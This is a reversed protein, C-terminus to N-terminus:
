GNAVTAAARGAVATLRTDQKQEGDHIHCIHTVHRLHRKHHLLHVGHGPGDTSRQCRRWPHSPDFRQGAREHLASSSAQWRFLGPVGGSFVCVFVCVCDAILARM